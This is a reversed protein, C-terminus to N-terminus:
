PPSSCCRRRCCWGPCRSRWWGNRGTRACGVGGPWPGAVVSVVTIGVLLYFQAPTGALRMLSRVDRFSVPKIWKVLHLQAYGTVIVPSVAVVAAVAVLWGVVFSRGIRPDRRARSAITVAHALVILLAFLNGLGLFALIVGYGILWRRRRETADLARVLVYSTAVALATV